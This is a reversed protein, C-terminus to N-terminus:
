PKAGKKSRPCAIRGTKELHDFFMDVAEDGLRIWRDGGPDNATQQSALGAVIGTWLDIAAPDTVGFRSFRAITHNMTEVSPLYADPSPEFGPITRTFM